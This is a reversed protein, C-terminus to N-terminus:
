SAVHEQPDCRDAIWSRHGASPDNSHNPAHAPENRRTSDLISSFVLKAAVGVIEPIIELNLPPEDYGSAVIKSPV